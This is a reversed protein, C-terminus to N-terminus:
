INKIFLVVCDNAFFNYNNHFNAIYAFISCSIFKFFRKVMLLFKFFLHFSCSHFSPSNALKINGYMHGIYRFFKIIRCYKKTNLGDTRSRCKPFIVFYSINGKIPHRMRLKAAARANTRRYLSNVEFILLCHVICVVTSLITEMSFNPYSHINVM